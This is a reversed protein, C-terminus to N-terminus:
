LRQFHFVRSSYAAMANNVLIASRNIGKLPDYGMIICPVIMSTESGHNETNEIFLPLKDEINSTNTISLGTASRLLRMGNDINQWQPSQFLLTINPSSIDAKIILCPVVTRVTCKVAHKPAM